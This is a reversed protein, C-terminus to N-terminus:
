RLMAPAPRMAGRSVTPLAVTARPTARRTMRATRLSRLCPTPRRPRSRKRQRRRKRALRATSEMGGGKTSLPHNLLFPPAKSSLVKAQAVATSCFCEGTRVPVRGGRGGRRTRGQGGGCVREAQRQRRNSLTQCLTRPFFPGPRRRSLNSAPAATASEAGVGGGGERKWRARPGGGGIMLKSAGSRAGSRWRRRRSQGHASVRM